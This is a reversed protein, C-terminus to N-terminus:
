NVLGIQEEEQWNGWGVELHGWVKEREGQNVREGAGGRRSQRGLKGGTKGASGAGGIVCVSQWKRRCLALENTSCGQWLAGAMEQRNEWYKGTKSKNCPKFWSRSKKSQAGWSNGWSNNTSNPSNHRNSVEGHVKTKRGTIGAHITKRSM